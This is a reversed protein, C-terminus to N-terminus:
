YIEFSDDEKYVVLDELDESKILTEEEKIKEESEEKVTQQWIEKEACQM